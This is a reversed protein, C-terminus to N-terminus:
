KKYNRWENGYESNYDPNSYPMNAKIKKRWDALMKRLEKVKGPMERSLDHQEGPDQKLNFLQVQFNEFYELLKYDGCRVAGGPSQQGHNSYQPFHWFLARSNIKSSTDPKQLVPAISMGDLVMNAPAPIGALDIITPYFDTSIVPVNCISGKGPTKGKWQIILPERIGGEYL